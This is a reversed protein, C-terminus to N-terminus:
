RMRMVKLIYKRKKFAAILIIIFIGYRIITSKYLPLMIGCVIISILLIVAQGKINFYKKYDIDNMPCTKLMMFYYIILVLLYSIFTTYGAVTYGFIPIFLANLIINCIAAFVSCVLILKTKNFYFLINVFQQYIFMIIVSIVIPPMVWVADLYASGGLILIIEPAVIIELVCFAAVIITAGTILQTQNENKNEKLSKFLWAQLSLNFAGSVIFVMMAASYAVSYLAAETYGWIKQIMLRDSHNLLVMSFYYPLLPLNYKITDIVFKGNWHKQAGKNNDLFFPFAIILQLLIRVGVVWLIPNELNLFVTLAGVVPGLFGYMLTAILMSQYKNNVRQRSSWLGFSVTSTFSVLMLLTIRTDMGTIKDIFNHFILYIIMWFLILLYSLSQMSSTYIKKDSDNKVLGVVYGSSYIRLTVIIEFIDLWSLFVSYTGYEQMSLAHTLIIMVLWPSIKQVINSITYWIAAKMEEPFLKYKEYIKKM